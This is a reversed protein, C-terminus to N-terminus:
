ELGEAGDYYRAVSSNRISSIFFVPSNKYVLRAGNSMDLFLSGTASETLSCFGSM